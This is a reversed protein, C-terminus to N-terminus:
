MPNIVVKRYPEEGESYTEVGDVNQLASHIIRREFPNMPELRVPKKTEIAKKALRNALKTLTEERKKRYNETDLIVRLYKERNKNVVLSLLYQLSDLTKGRKGILVGMDNGYKGLVEVFLENGTRTVIVKADINLEKFISYLFEETVKQPDNIVTVKVKADKSGIGFFGKTPEEIVEYTIDDKSVGLERVALNIAEEVSKSTKIVSKM